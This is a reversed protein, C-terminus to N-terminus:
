GNGECYLAKADLDRVAVYVCCDRLALDHQMQVIMMLKRVCIMGRSQWLCDKPLTCRRSMSRSGVSPTEFLIFTYDVEDVQDRLSRRTVCM